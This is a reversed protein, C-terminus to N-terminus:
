NAENPRFTLKLSRFQNFLNIDKPLPLPESAMIAREVANDCSPNGSSKILKPSGNLQGTPQLGIEFKLEPNGNGCLSKNVNSRIKNRIKTQFEDIVGASAAAKATNAQEVGTANDEALMDQALKKIADNQQKQKQEKLLKDKVQQDDKLMDQKLAALKKSQELKLKDDSKKQELAKLKKDLAIDVVPKKPQPEEVKPLPEQKVIPEPKPKEQVEPTQEPPTSHAAVTPLSDWLEVEAITSAHKTKWNVSVLLGMILLGHVGVSLAGAKWSVTKERQRLM